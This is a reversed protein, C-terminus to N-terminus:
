HKMAVMPRDRVTESISPSKWRFDCFKGVVKYKASRSFPNLKSNPVPAPPWFVLIISSSPRCLLKVIDEAKQICHVLTVSPCVSVPSCCLGRKLMTDCYYYYYYNNNNSDKTTGWVIISWNPYSFCFWLSVRVPCFLTNSHRRYPPPWESVSWTTWCKVWKECTNRSTASYTSSM